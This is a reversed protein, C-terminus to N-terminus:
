YGQGDPYPVDSGGRKVVMMDSKLFFNIFCLFIPPPSPTFGPPPHDGGCPCIMLLDMSGLPLIIYINNVKKNGAMNADDHTWKNKFNAKKRSKM